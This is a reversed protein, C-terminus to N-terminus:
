MPEIHAQAVADKAREVAQKFLAATEAASRGDPMYGDRQMRAAIKPDKLAQQIAANLKDVVPQPTKAPAFFMGWSGSHEYGPLASRMLPVNPYAPFPKTGTFAIARVQGAQIAGMVSPPTVFMVDISKSLLATLVEGAGKFPVHQMSLGAKQAFTSAALHLENGVGPSGYTVPNKKAYEIFEQVSHIPSSGNVLMFIGDLVGVTAVPKLDALLDYGLNKYIYPTPTISSSSFLLTYGDPDSAVVSRVALTGNAGTRNEVFFQQGLEISLQQSVLRAQIDPGGGAAYGVVVKVPHSPYDQAYAQAFLALTLFASALTRKM